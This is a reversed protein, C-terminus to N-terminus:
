VMVALLLGVLKLAAPKGAASDTLVVVPAMEPVGVTAPLKLTVTLAVLAAPVPEAVNARLIAAVPDVLALRNPGLSVGLMTVTLSGFATVRPTLNWAEVLPVIVPM